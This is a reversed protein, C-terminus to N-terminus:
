DSRQSVGLLPVTLLAAGTVLFPGAYLVTLQTRLTFRPM